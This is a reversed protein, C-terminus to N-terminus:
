GANRLTPRAASDKAANAPAPVIAPSTPAASSSRTGVPTTVASTAVGTHRLSEQIVERIDSEVIRSEIVSRLNVWFHLEFQLSTESFSILLVLPAPSSLVKPHSVAADFLRRRVEDVSLVPSLTVGITSRVLDDSLTLNTVKNELLNSNPVVIEYNALTKIVTSRAGIREVTGAVGDIQVLDGVRIPQEALLILGSFFNNLINQSGFGIGIAAAGGLFTLAALPLNVLDLALLSFVVSLLYYAIVQVAHVAGDNLGFRPLVHRGLFRSILRAFLIGLTVYCIASAVKGVTISNDGVHALEHDWCTALAAQASAIWSSGENQQRLAALEDFFRALWRQNSKLHLICTEVLDALRELQEVKLDLWRKFPADEAANLHVRRYLSAQDVRIEELRLSLSREAQSLSAKMEALQEHWDAVQEKSARGNALEFRCEVFHSLRAMEGVRQTLMGIMERQAHKATQHADRAAAILEDDAKAARLEADAKTQAATFQPLQKEAERQRSRFEAAYKAFDALRAKKDRETFKVQKALREAKDELLEKRLKTSERRATKLKIELQLLEVNEQAVQSELKAQRLERAVAERETSSEDGASVLEDWAEQTQRRTAEADDFANKASDLWQETTTLDAEITAFRDQEAALQDRIEELVLFSKTENPGFRRLTEHAERIQQQDRDLETQQELVGEIQAYILDLSRLLDLENAARDATEDSADDSTAEAVAALEAIEGAVLARKAAVSTSTLPKVNGGLEDARALANPAGFVGALSAGIVALLIRRVCDQPRSSFM